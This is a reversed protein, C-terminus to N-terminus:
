STEFCSTHEILCVCVCMCVCWVCKHPVVVSYQSVSKGVGRGGSLGCVEVSLPNWVCRCERLGCVKVYVSDVCRVLCLTWVGRFVSVGCVEVSM